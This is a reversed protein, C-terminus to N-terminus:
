LQVGKFFHEGSGNVRTSKGNIQGGSVSSDGQNVTVTYEYDNDKGLMERSVALSDYLHNRCIGGWTNSRATELTIIYFYVKHKYSHTFLEPAGYCGSSDHPILDSNSIKITDCYDIKTWTSDYKAGWRNLLYKVSDITEYDSWGILITDNTRNTIKILEMSDYVFICSALLSIAFVFCPIRKMKKSIYNTSIQLYVFFYLAAM